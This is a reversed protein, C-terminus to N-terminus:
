EWAKEWALEFLSRLSNAMYRNKMKMGSPIKWQTTFLAITDWQINIECNSPYTDEDVLRTERLEAKDRSMYEKADDTAPQISRVSIKKGVRKSTYEKWDEPHVQTHYKNLGFCLQEKGPAELVEDILMSVADIGEYYAIKGEIDFAPAVQQERIKELNDIIDEANNKLKKIEREKKECLERFDEPEIGKFYTVKNKEFDVIVQKEKLAQLASYTSSRNMGLKKAIMSAIMPGRSLLHLYIKIENDNLGFSKLFPSIM